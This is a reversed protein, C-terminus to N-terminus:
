RMGGRGRRRGIEILLKRGREMVRKGRERDTERKGLGM